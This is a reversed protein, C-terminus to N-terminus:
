EHIDKGKQKINNFMRLAISDEDIFRLRTVHVREVRDGFEVIAFVQSRQPTVSQEWCHFYGTEGSVECLRKEMTLIFETNM